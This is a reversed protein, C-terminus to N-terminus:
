PDSARGPGSLRGGGGSGGTQPHLPIPSDQEKPLVSQGRPVARLGSEGEEAGESARQM